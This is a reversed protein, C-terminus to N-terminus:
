AVEPQVRGPRHRVPRASADHRGGSNAASSVDGLQLPVTVQKGHFRAGAPNQATAVSNNPDRTVVYDGNRELGSLESLLPHEYGFVLQQSEMLETLFDQYNALAVSDAM